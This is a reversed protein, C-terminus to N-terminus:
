LLGQGIKYTYNPIPPITISTVQCAQINLSVFYQITAVSGPYLSSAVQVTILQPGVDVATTLAETAILNTGSISM